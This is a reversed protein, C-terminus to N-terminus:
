ETTIQNIITPKPRVSMTKKSVGFWSPVIKYLLWLFFAGKLLSNLIQLTDTEMSSTVQYYLVPLWLIILPLKRSVVFLRKYTWRIFVGLFFMYIIGGMVGFSGYAEGLPGVNTSWGYIDMGTFYKMSERGGAEPKDPWLFRPVFASATVLILRNGGDFDQRTPIRNMVVSVNIGQNARMYIPFFNLEDFMNDVNGLKESLIEGFVEYKNGAYDEDKWTEHRYAGKVNQIVMLALAGIVFVLVKKWLAFKKGLFLFSFITIGMYVILTFVGSEITGGVIFLTFLTLLLKKYRFTPAYYIYLVGAFSSFFFLISFFQLGVPMRDAIFLMTIGVLVISIGKRGFKHLTKKVNFLLRQLPPGEDLVGRGHKIPWCMAVSFATVAPLAYSFYVDEPVAMYKIFARALYNQYNYFRYGVEAMVLCIFVTHLVILERLVLGKGLKDLVALVTVVFLIVSIELYWDTALSLFFSVFLFFVLLNNRVLAM